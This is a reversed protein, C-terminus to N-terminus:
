SRSALDRRRRPDPEEVVAARVAEVGLGRDGGGLRSLFCTRQSSAARASGAGGAPHAPEPHSQTERRLLRAPRPTAVTEGLQECTVVVAADVLGLDLTAYTVRNPPEYSGARTSTTRGTPAARSTRWSSSWVDPGYLKLLWYDVEVLVLAPVVLAERTREVLQVCREHEPDPTDSVVIPGTDLVLAVVLAHRPPGPM